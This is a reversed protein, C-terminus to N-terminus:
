GQDQPMKESNTFIATLGSGNGNSKWKAIHYLIEGFIRRVYKVPIKSAARRYWANHSLIESLRDSTTLELTQLGYTKCLRELSRSTYFFLHRPADLHEWAAKLVSFDYSDINPVAILLIGGAALRQVAKEVVIWPKPLHELCHWLAIVDFKKNMADMTAAPDSSQIAEVGVVNNLFDVCQANMEIATVDFGADKANCSFIGTWPGIELLRGGKKRNLISDM